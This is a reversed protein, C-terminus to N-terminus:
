PKSVWEDFFAALNKGAASEMAKQFDQSTAAKNWNDRTYLRLGQWFKDEGMERRLLDLVYAGKHYPIEGSAEDPTNWAHFSLARDKGQGKLGEYIGRSREIEREYRERGFRRELFADALFTAMGENLWFDSWDLCQIRVAYWQHALEHALLGLAEPETKIINAYAEPLLTFNANEQMPSGHTFVQTYAPAPYVKGTKDAFFQLAARTAEIIASGSKALDPGGLLRLGPVAGPADATEQFQGVAFGYLFAPLPTDIRWEAAGAPEGSATARWGEKPAIRLRLTARNEPRENCVMWDSTFFESYIQDPFFKLGKAPGAEYHITLTRPDKPVAPRLLKVFLLGDQREFKQKVKGELVDSIEITPGADLEVLYLQGGTTNFHIAVEGSIRQNEPDPVLKLDYRDVYYPRPLPAASARSVLGATSLAL